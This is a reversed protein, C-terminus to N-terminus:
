AKREVEVVRGSTDRVPITPDAPEEKKKPEAEKKDETQFTEQFKERGLVCAEALKSVFLRLARIADDNGPVLYDINDPDCNTDVLSVVPIHLINAERVAIREKKPDVIVLVGPLRGMGKIGGLVKELKERERELRLVEKKLLGEYRNEEKMRDLEKLREIGRRITEFNTLTGGLWRNTVYFMETKEVEEEILEQAQKKTGVFLVKEGSAVTELIFQYAQKFLRLTQQLDIIYIGDRAGYIYPKMKPNWRNTQHGFHVGSELLQKMSIIEVVDGKSFQYNNVM